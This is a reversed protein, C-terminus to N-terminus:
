IDCSSYDDISDDDETGRSHMKLRIVEGQLEHINKELGQLRLAVETAASHPRRTENQQRAVHFLGHRAERSFPQTSHQTPDNQLVCDRHRKFPAAQPIQCRSRNWHDLLGVSNYFKSADPFKEKEKRTWQTSATEFSFFRRPKRDETQETEKRIVFKRTVIFLGLKPPNDDGSSFYFMYRSPLYPSKLAKAQVPLFSCM